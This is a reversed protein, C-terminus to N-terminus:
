SSWLLMYESPSLDKLRNKKYSIVGEAEKKNLQIYDKVIRYARYGRVIRTFPRYLWLKPTDTVKQNLSKLLGNKGFEQAIQGSAVRFFSQALGRRPVRILIHCHDGCVAIQEIRIFFRKAYKRLTRLVIRHAAHSRFGTRMHFRNAKLVLHIPNKTSIVRSTRGKRKNRLVGGHKLHFKWRTNEFNSQKIIHGIGM